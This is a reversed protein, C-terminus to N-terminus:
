DTRFGGLQVGRRFCILLRRPLRRVSGVREGDRSIRRVRRYSICPPLCESLVRPLILRFVGTEDLDLPCRSLSFPSASGGVPMQSDRSPDQPRDARILVHHPNVSFSRFVRPISPGFRLLPRRWTVACITWSPLAACRSPGIASVPLPFIVILHLFPFETTVQYSRCDRDHTVWVM